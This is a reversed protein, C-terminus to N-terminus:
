YRADGGRRAQSEVDFGDNRPHTPYTGGAAAPALTMQTM